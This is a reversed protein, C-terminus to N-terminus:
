CGGSCSVGKRDVKKGARKKYRDQYIVGHNRAVNSLKKQFERSFSINSIHTGTHMVMYTDHVKPSPLQVTSMSQLLFM